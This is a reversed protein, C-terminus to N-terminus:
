GALLEEVATLASNGEPSSLGHVMAVGPTRSAFRSVARFDAHPFRTFRMIRYKPTKKRM